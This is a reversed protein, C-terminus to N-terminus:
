HTGPTNLEEKRKSTFCLSSFSTNRRLVLKKLQKHIAVNSIGLLTRLDYAKSQGNHSIYDVIKDTTSQTQIKMTM